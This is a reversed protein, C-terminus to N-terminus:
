NSDTANCVGGKKKCHREDSEDDMSDAVKCVRAKKKCHMEYSEDDICDTANCVPAKRKKCHMEQLLMWYGWARFCTVFDLRVTCTFQDMAIHLISAQALHEIHM